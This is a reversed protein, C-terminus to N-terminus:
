RRRPAVVSAQIRDAAFAPRVEFKLTESGRQVTLNVAADDAARLTKLGDSATETKAVDKSNVQSVVDGDRLGAKAAPMGPVIKIMPWNSVDVGLSGREKSPSQRADMLNTMSEAQSVSLVDAVKSGTASLMATLGANVLQQQTREPSIAHLDHLM